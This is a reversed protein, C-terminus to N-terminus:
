NYSVVKVDFGAAQLQKVLGEPGAMHLAGVAVFAAEKQLVPKLATLWNQNRQRLLQEFYETSEVRAEAEAAELGAIDGRNYLSFVRVRDTILKEVGQDLNLKILRIQEPESVAQLADIQGAAEELYRVTIKATKARERLVLDMISNPDVTQTSPASGIMLNIYWPRMRKLVEAPIVLKNATLRTSLKQFYSDGLRTQLDSQADIAQTVISAAIKNLQDIDAEMYFVQSAQLQQIFGDPLKYGAAFPAHVTGTLYSVPQAQGTPRVEWVMVNSVSESASPVSSPSVSVGPAPTQSVTSSPQNSPLVLQGLNGSNGSSPSSSPNPIPTTPTNECASLALLGPILVPLLRRGFRSLKQRQRM